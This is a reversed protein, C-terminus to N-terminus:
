AIRDINPTDVQSNPTYSRVEGLGMDDALIYVINPREPQAVAHTCFRGASSFILACAVVVEIRWVREPSNVGAFESLSNATAVLGPPSADHRLSAVSARRAETAPARFQHLPLYGHRRTRGVADRNRRGDHWISM